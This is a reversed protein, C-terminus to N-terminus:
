NALLGLTSFDYRGSKLFFSLGCLGMFNLERRAHRMNRSWLDVGIRFIFQKNSANAIKTGESVHIQLCGIMFKLEGSIEGPQNAM